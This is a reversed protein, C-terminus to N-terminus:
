FLNDLLNKLADMKIQGPASAEGLFGFTMDSGYHGGVVRSIVGKEGMCMSIIPSNLMNKAELTTNLLNITDELSEAMVAIKPIDAGNKISELIKNLIVGSEPTKIFNHYSLILKIDSDKIIRKVKKIYEKGKSLEIDIIDILKEKSVAELIKLKSEDKVKKKGGELYDRITFILPIDKIEDKLAKLGMVIDEINESEFCDVRWEIIDPTALYLMKADECLSKIDSSVLPLCILVKEGGFVRGRIDIKKESIIRM